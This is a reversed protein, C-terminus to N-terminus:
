NADTGPTHAQPTAADMFFHYGPSFALHLLDNSLRLQNLVALEEMLPWLQVRHRLQQLEQRSLQVRVGLEQDEPHSCVDLLGRCTMERQQQEVSSVLRDLVGLTFIVIAISKSLRTSSHLVNVGIRLIPCPCLQRDVINLLPFLLDFYKLLLEGSSHPDLLTNALLVLGCAELLSEKIDLGLGVVHLRVLEQSMSATTDELRLDNVDLAKSLQRLRSACDAM